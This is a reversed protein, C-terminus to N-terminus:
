SGKWLKVRWLRNNQPGKPQLRIVETVRANQVDLVNTGDGLKSEILFWGTFLHTLDRNMQDAKTDTATLAAKTATLAAQTKTLEM